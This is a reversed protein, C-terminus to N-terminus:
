KWFPTCCVYLQFQEQGTGFGHRGAPRGEPWHLFWMVSTLKLKVHMHGHM